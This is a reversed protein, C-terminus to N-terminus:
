RERGRRLQLAEDKRRKEERVEIRMLDMCMPEISKIGRERKRMTSDTRGVNDYCNVSAIERKIV